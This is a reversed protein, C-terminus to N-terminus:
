WGLGGDSYGHVPQRPVSRVFRGHRSLRQLLFMVIGADQEIAGSERLDALKPRKDQRKDQRLDVGRNLQALAIVPVNM